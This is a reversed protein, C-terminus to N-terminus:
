SQNTFTDHLQRPPFPLSPIAGKEDDNNDDDAHNNNENTMSVDKSYLDYGKKMLLSKPEKLSTYTLVMVIGSFVTAGLYPVRLGYISLGGGIMPGVIFCSSMVASMYSM